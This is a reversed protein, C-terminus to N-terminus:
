RVPQSSRCPTRTRAGPPGAARTRVVHNLTARVRAGHVGPGRLMGHGEMETLLVDARRLRFNSAAVSLFFCYATISPTMGRKRLESAV